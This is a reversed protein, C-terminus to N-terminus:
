HDGSFLLGPGAIISKDDKLSIPKATNTVVVYVYGDVEKPLACDQIKSVVVQNSFLFQCWTQVKHNEGDFSVQVKDSGKAPLKVMLPKFPTVGLEKNLNFPCSQIFASAITTVENQSLPTDFTYPAGEGGNIENLFSSHRAEVTAISAASTLIDGNKLGAAVGLYASVGTEELARAVTIFDRVNDLPFKYVCPPLPTGKLSTIVSKLVTVHEAEHEGIHVFTERVNNGLGAAKFDQDNFKALGMKYFADELQELTLAYNLIGVDSKPNSVVKSVPAALVAAAISCAVVIASFRM